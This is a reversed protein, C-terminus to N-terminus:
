ALHNDHLRLGDESARNLPPGHAVGGRGDPLAICINQM